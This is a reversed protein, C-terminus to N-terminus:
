KSFGMTVEYAAQIRQQQKEINAEWEKAAQENGYRRATIKLTYMNVRLDFQQM